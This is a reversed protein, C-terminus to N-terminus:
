PGRWDVTASGAHIAPNDDALRAPTKDGLWEAGDGRVDDRIECIDWDASRM